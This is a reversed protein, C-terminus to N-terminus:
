ERWLGRKQDRAQQYLREFLRSYKTNPSISMPSAYGESLILANVFTEIYRRGEEEVIYIVGEVPEFSLTNGAVEERIFVYALLRNYKDRQEIDFELRVQRGELLKQAFEYAKQGQAMIAKINRRSKYADRYLKDNERMEPCDIGLLRVKEGNALKITDGDYVKVVAISEYSPAPLFRSAFLAALSLAVVLFRRIFKQFLAAPTGRYSDRKNRGM